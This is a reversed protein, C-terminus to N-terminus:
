SDLTDKDEMIVKKFENEYVSLPVPISYECTYKGWNDYMCGGFTVAAIATGM